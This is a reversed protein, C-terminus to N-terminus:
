PFPLDRRQYLVMSRGGFSFREAPRLHAECWARVQPRLAALKRDFPFGAPPDNETLFVFDSRELRAMVEADKPEAISIPLTMEFPLLVRHREYLVVRLVQADLADTIYDVAVHPRPKTEGPRKPLAQLRGHLRDAVTNIQRLEALQEPSFAPITQARVFWLLIALTVATAFVSRALSGAREAATAWAAVVLTIAGPALAGIVAESKQVHLILITAPALLFLAGVIWLERHAPQPPSRRLLALTVTGAIALLGFGAGLHREGLNGFVYQLSRLFGFNQNRIASEPGVYHGIWYYERVTDYNLWFIPAAIVTAIGASRLLHLFRTRRDPAPLLIWAALGAFILVFYTGTLFRTLLTVGVAVGFWTSGARSRFGDALLATAATVGLACMALHDLRFDYASGPVNLWPGALALPLLAAAFALPRSGSARAVAVFLAAQWAILALMNVALAASRSPGAVTFTLIAFVDHLTGQASPNTLADLVGAVLGRSRAFEYGAYSETLYQIQDNFRPYVGTHRRAGFQDFIWFEAAFVGLLLWFVPSRLFSPLRLTM